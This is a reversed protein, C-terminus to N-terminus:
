LTACLPLRPQSCHMRLAPMPGGGVGAEAKAKSGDRAATANALSNVRASSDFMGSGHAQALLAREWLGDPIAMRNIIPSGPPVTLLCGRSSMAMAAAFIDISHAGGEVREGEAGACPMRQKGPHQCRGASRRRKGSCLGRVGGDCKGISKGRYCPQRMRSM